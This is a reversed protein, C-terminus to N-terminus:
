LVKRERKKKMKRTLYIERKMDKRFSSVGGYELITVYRGHINSCRQSLFAKNRNSLHQMFELKREVTAMLWRIGSRGIVVSRCVRISNEVITISSRWTKPSFDFAKLEVWFHM